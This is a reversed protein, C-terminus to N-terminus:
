MPGGVYTRVNGNMCIPRITFMMVAYGDECLFICVTINIIRKYQRVYMLNDNVRVYMLVYTCLVYM